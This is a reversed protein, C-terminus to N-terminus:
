MAVECYLEMHVVSNCSFLYIFLLSAKDMPLWVKIRKDDVRWAHWNERLGSAKLHTFTINRVVHEFM